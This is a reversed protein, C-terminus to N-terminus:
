QSARALTLLGCGYAKARGIGNTLAERLLDPNAVTLNGEFTAISLTITKGDRAFQRVERNSVEYGGLIVGYKTMKAEFWQKQDDIRLCPTIKGRANPSETNMKSFTPNAQLRFQWQQGQQLNTLFSDYQTTKWKQESAPWGIQEILHTFDPKDPSMVLIFLSHKLRDVRWLHRKAPMDDVPNPFSAAIM